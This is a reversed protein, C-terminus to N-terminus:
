DPEPPDPSLVLWPRAAARDYKQKMSVHYAISRLRREYAKELGLSMSITALAGEFRGHPVSLLHRHKQVHLAARLRYAHSLRMMEVVWVGGGLAVAIIAVVLMLRRVTFRVRPLLM